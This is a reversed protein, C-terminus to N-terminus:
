HVVQGRRYDRMTIRAVILDCLMGGVLGAIACFLVSGFFITGGNDTITGAWFFIVLFAIIAGIFAGAVVAGRKRVSSMWFVLFLSFPLSLLLGFIDGIIVGTAPVALGM